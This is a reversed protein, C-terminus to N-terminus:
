GVIEFPAVLHYPRKRKPRAPRDVDKVIRYLGPQFQDGLFLRNCRGAAGPSLIGGWLAWGGRVADPMGVWEGEFRQVSFAAGYEGWETGFNEIRSLVQQGVHFREGNLGLKVRWFWRAFVKLYESYAGLTKGRSDIIEFDYRYFGPRRLPELYLEVEDASRITRITREMQDVERGVAGARSVVVMRARLTWYLPTRGFYNTSWLRYGFSQGIPIM